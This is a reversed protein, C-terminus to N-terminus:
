YGFDIPGDVTQETSKLTGNVIELRTVLFMMAQFLLRKESM